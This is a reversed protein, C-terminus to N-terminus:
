PRCTTPSSCSWPSCTTPACRGRAWAACCSASTKPLAAEYDNALRGLDLSPRLVCLEIPRLGRRLRAPLHEVLDNIRQMRLADADFQDLFIANFVNGLIQAPPPYEPQEEGDDLPRPWRTSIALVREAGLHVAPSLPDTLRMGGDGFWRGDVQVAPFFLPLAASAMVHAVRLRTPRAIRHARKWPQLRRGQVWTVSRGSTYSAATIALADLAGSRLNAEIGPLDGDPTDLLRHLLADLPATDVLARPRPAGRRGGSALGLAVRLANRMLDWTQVDFIQGVTLESWHGALEEAKEAFARAHAGFYAANIAGASVGTVISFRAEPVARAIGRLLGVQYAARAGGGSLVLAIGGLAEHAIEEAAM